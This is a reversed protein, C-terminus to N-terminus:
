NGACDSTKRCFSRTRGYQDQFDTKGCQNIPLIEHEESLINWENKDNMNSTSYTKTKNREETLIICCCMQDSNLSSSETATCVLNIEEKSLGEKIYKLTEEKNCDAYSIETSIAVMLFLQLTKLTIKTM